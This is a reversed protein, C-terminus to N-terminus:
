SGDGGTPTATFGADELASIESTSLVQAIGILVRRTVGNVSVWVHEPETNFGGTFGPNIDQYPWRQPPVYPHITKTDDGSVIVSVM